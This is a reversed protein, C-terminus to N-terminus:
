EFNVLKENEALNAINLANCLSMYESCFEPLYDFKRMIADKDLAVNKWGRVPNADNKHVRSRTYVIGEWTSMEAKIDRELTGRLETDDRDRCVLRILDSQASSSVFAGTKITQFQKLTSGVLDLGSVVKERGVELARSGAIDFPKAMHFAKGWALVAATAIWNMEGSAFVMKCPPLETPKDRFSHECGIPIIRATLAGGEDKYIPAVNSQLTIKATPFMQFPTGYKHEVTKPEGGTISKIQEYRPASEAVTSEAEDVFAALKWVMQALQFRGAGVGSGGFAGFNQHTVNHAGLLGALILCLSGKGSGTPGYLFM